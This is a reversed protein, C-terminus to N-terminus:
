AAAAQEHVEADGEEEDEEAAYACTSGGNAGAERLGPCGSRQRGRGWRERVPRACGVGLCGTAQDRQFGLRAEVWMDKGGADAGHM